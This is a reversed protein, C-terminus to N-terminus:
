TGVCLWCIARVTSVAGGTAGPKYVFIKAGTKTPFNSAEAWAANPADYDEGGICVALPAILPGNPFAFPFAITYSNFGSASGFQVLMGSPLRFFGPSLPSWNPGKFADALKKATIACADDSLAQALATNAIKILGTRVDTANRASLAGPTVARQFDIGEATEADTALEVLGRRGPTATLLALGMSTVAKSADEGAQVEAASALQILGARDVRATRQNLNGPSVATDFDSGANVELDTALRLIGRHSESAGRVGIDLTIDSDGNVSVEAFTADGAPDSKLSRAQAWAKAKGATLQDAEGALREAPVTGKALWSADLNQLAYALSDTTEASLPRESVSNAVTSIQKFLWGLKEDTLQQVKNFQEVTPPLSGIFAWGTRYQPLTMVDVTGAEAWPTEFLDFFTPDAM